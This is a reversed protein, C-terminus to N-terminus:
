YSVKIKISRSVRVFLLTSELGLGCFNLQPHPRIAMFLPGALATGATGAAGGRFLTPGKEVEGSWWAELLASREKHIDPVM